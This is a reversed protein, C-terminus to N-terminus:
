YRVNYREELVRILLRLENLRGDLDENRKELLRIREDKEKLAHEFAESVMRVANEVLSMVWAPNATPVENEPKSLQRFAVENHEIGKASSCDILPQAQVALGGENFLILYRGKELRYHISNSKIKRRITSTSIGSRVSFETLPIWLGDSEGRAESVHQSM